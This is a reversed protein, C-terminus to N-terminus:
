VAHLAVIIEEGEQWDWCIAAIIYGAITIRNYKIEPSQLLVM